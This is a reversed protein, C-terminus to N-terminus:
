RFYIEDELIRGLFKKRNVVIKGVEMNNLIM